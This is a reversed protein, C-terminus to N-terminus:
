SPPQSSHMFAAFWQTWEEWTLAEARKTVDLPIQDLAKRERTGTPFVGRLMKRRMRFAATLLKQWEAEHGQTQAIRPTTRATLLVVESDVKPAPKFAHPPAKCVRKVDWRNQIWLSLSGWAKSDPEAYLRQAVEAQFMLVMAPIQEPHRALRQLIATGSAYPLNSFVVLPTQTLWVSDPHDLFDGVLVPVVPRWEEVLGRDMEAVQFQPLTNLRSRTALEPLASLFPTTLAGQGPGIELVARPRHATIADFVAGLTADIVRTDTLFHQGYARRKASGQLAM